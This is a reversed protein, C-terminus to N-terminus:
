DRDEGETDNGRDHEIELHAGSLQRQYADLGRQRVPRRMTERLAGRTREGVIDQLSRPTGHVSVIKEVASAKYAQYSAAHEIAALVDSMSYRSQLELIATLERGAYRRHARLRRAFEGAPESLAEFRAIMADIDIRRKRAVHAPLTARSKSGREQRDHSAILRAARDYIQLTEVGVRLAVLAGVYRAPVSYHNSEHQVHQYGDVVRWCLSRTDYPTRPLPRLTTREERMAEGVVRGTTSHTRADARHEVWWELTDRAQAPSDFRRGNFFSTELYRFPREVKGKYQPQYPPAVHVTFDYYAAFDLMTLQIVPEGAEWHSVVTKMNDFVLEHPVGGFREFARRLGTMLTPQREDDFFEIYQGRSHSLIVSLAHLQHGSDIKYPSWDVQAQAGPETEVRLSPKKAAKPRLEGVLERVITYGGDFGRDRLEEHVRQATIDPYEGLLWAIHERHPDLKSARPTRQTAAAGLIDDGQERRKAQKRLIRRVTKRAVGLARTIGRISEGRARRRVVEYVLQERPTSM